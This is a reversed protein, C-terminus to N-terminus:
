LIKEAPSVRASKMQWLFIFVFVCQIAAMGFLWYGEALAALYDHNSVRSSLMAVWMQGQLLVERLLGPSPDGSHRDMIQQGWKGIYLIILVLSMCLFILDVKRTKFVAIAIVGGVLGYVGILMSYRTSNGWDLYVIVVAYLLWALVYLGKFMSEKTTINMAYYASSLLEVASVQM